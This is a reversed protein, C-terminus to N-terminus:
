NISLRFSGSFFIFFKFDLTRSILLSIYVPGLIVEFDISIRSQVVGHGDQREWPGGPRDGFPEGLHERLALITEQPASISAGFRGIVASLSLWHIM